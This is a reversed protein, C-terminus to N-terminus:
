LRLVHKLWVKQEYYPVIRIGEPLIKNIESLRKEVDAIVTSSNTGFLKIVMGAIVEEVGNRTQLGRRIAGGTKIGALDGLFIPSGDVTKIVINNLDDIGKALGVSRVIFEESNKEIFQAGVNLNNARIREIVDQLSVSYRLLADPNIEVHFQKEFGGIGLIETVGPVTQLNFKVIWDQIERLEILSYQGTTDELYYFLILGMGTSIPGMVPEGFGDPIQERAEQLRENVLQRAFYIDVNDEFYVNVVSLGFNSISRVNDIGPLGTMAVEVPFTVYMEIEEPALGETETFIQVLNPSVDPFADIPIQTYARYGGIMIMIAFLVMLLRNHLSFDILKDIM